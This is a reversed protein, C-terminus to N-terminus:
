GGRAEVKGSIKAGSNMTMTGANVDAKLESEKELVLEGCTVHGELHGAVVVREAKLGGKVKGQAQIDVSKADIDGTVKGAVSVAGQKAVLNGQIDMDPQIVTEAM